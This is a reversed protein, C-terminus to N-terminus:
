LLFLQRCHHGHGEQLGAAESKVIEKILDKFILREIDLVLAPVECCNKDWDKSDKDVDEAIINIIEDYSGSSTNTKFNNIELYLEELLKEGNLIKGRMKSSLGASTSTALKQVLIDDVTDFIMKRKLKESKTTCKKNKELTNFLEPNILNCKPHLDVTTTACNLNKQIGSAILIEKIYTNEENISERPIITDEDRLSNLLEIQHVLHKINDLNIHNFRSKSQHRETSSVLNDIGVQGWEREDFCLDEDDKFTYSKKQIPSTTDENYFEDLVSVPSPQEVALTVLETIPKYGMLKDAFLNKNEQSLVISMAESEDQTDDQQSLTRTHGGQRCLKRNTQLQNTFRTKSKSVNLQGNTKKKIGQVSQKEPSMPKKTRCTLKTETTPLNRAVRRGAMGNAKKVKRFNAIYPKIVTGKHHETEELKMEKGRIAELVQKIARIDKGSTIFEADTLRQGNVKRSISNLEHGSCPEIKLNEDKNIVDNIDDLGMLKAVVNTRNKISSQKSDLSLRSHENINAVSKLKYPSAREDYSFRAEKIGRSISIEQLKALNQDKREYLVPKPHHLPRPSDVHTMAPGKREEKAVTKVPVARPKRTMSEKVVNKIDPLEVSLDQELSSVETQLSKSSDLSSCSSTISNRSSEVSVRHKEKALKNWNKEKPKYLANNFKKGNDSQDQPLKKQHNGQRRQGLLYRRDFLQFIGNMCGLQKKIEQKAETVETSM